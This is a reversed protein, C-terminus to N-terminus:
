NSMEESMYTDEQKVKKQYTTDEQKVKRPSMGTLNQPM